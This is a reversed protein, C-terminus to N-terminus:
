EFGYPGNFPSIDFIGALTLGERMDQNEDQDNTNAILFADTLGADEVASHTGLVAFREQQDHREFLPLSFQVNGQVGAARTQDVVQQIKDLPIGEFIFLEGTYGHRERLAEVADHIFFPAEVEFTLPQLLVRSIAASFVPLDFSDGIDFAGQGFIGSQARFRWNSPAAPVSPLLAPLSGDLNVFQVAIEADNLVASLTGNAAATFVITDGPRALFGPVSRFGAGNDLRTVSINRAGNAFTMEIRPMAGSVTEANMLLELQSATARGDLNVKTDSIGLVRDPKPSFERLVVLGELDARMGEFGPPLRLQDLNFPLGLASRVGGVIAARTGGGTFLPVVSQLRLRFAADSEPEGTRLIRREVSFVAGLRDLSSGEAYRVWHSKLLRKIKEDATMLEAAIADLVKFLVSEREGAAYVDPFLAALKDTKYSV